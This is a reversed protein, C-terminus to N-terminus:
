VEGNVLALMLSLVDRANFKGDSNFDAKDVAFAVDQWGALARMMLRVDAANIRGSGDVDGPAIEDPAVISVAGNESIAGYASVGDTSIFDEPNASPIVSIEYRDGEAAGEPLKVRFVAVVTEECLSGQPSVWMFKVGNRASRATPGVIANAPDPLAEGPTVSDIELGTVRVTFLLSALGEPPLDSVTIPVDVIQAGAVASIQPACLIVPHEGPVVIEDWKAYITKNSLITTNFSFESTCAANSYWGGFTYGDRSPDEPQVVREGSVVTQPPPAAVGAGCDFTVTVYKRWKAYATADDSLPVTFDFEKVCSPTTYWGCFAYGEAVPDAPRTPIQGRALTQAAPVSGRSSSFTLTMQAPTNLMDVVAKAQLRAEAATKSFLVNHVYMVDEDAASSFFDLRVSTITGTWETLDSANLTLYKYKSGSVSTGGSVSQGARAGKNNTNFFVETTYNQQSNTDPIRYIVTLYKYDEATIKKTLKTYRIQAYPDPLGASNSTGVNKATLRLEGDVIKRECENYASSMLANFDTTNEFKLFTPDMAAGNSSGSKYTARLAVDNGPMTFATVPAYENAVTVGGSVVQWRDFTMGSPADAAVVTVSKGEVSRSLLSVGSEVSVGYEATSDSDPATRAQVNESLDGICLNDFEAYCNTNWFLIPTYNTGITFYSYAGVTKGNAFGVLLGNRCMLGLKVSEGSINFGPDGDIDVTGGGSFNTRPSDASLRAISTRSGDKAFYFLKYVDRDSAGYLAASTPDCIWLGAGFSNANANDKDVRVDVWLTFEKYTGLGARYLGSAENSFTSQAVVADSYGAMVGNEVSFYGIDGWFDSIGNEFDDQFIIAAFSTTEAAVSLIVLLCLLAAFLRKKM